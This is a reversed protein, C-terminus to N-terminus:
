ATEEGSDDDDVDDGGGYDPLLHTHMYSWFSDYKQWPTGGYAQKKQLKFPVVSFDVNM